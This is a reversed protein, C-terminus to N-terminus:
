FTKESFERQSQREIVNRAEARTRREDRKEKNEANFEEGRTHAEAELEEKPM